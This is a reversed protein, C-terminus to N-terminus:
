FFLVIIILLYYFSSNAPLSMTLATKGDMPISQLIDFSLLSRESNRIECSLQLQERFISQFFAKFKEDNIIKITSEVLAVAAQSSSGESYRTNTKKARSLADPHKQAYLCSLAVDLMNKQEKWIDISKQLVFFNAEGDSINKELEAIYSKVEERKQKIEDPITESTEHNGSQM